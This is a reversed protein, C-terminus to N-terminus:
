NLQFYFRKKKCREEQKDPQIGARHHTAPPIGQGGSRAGGGAHGVQLLELCQATLRDIFLTPAAAVRGPDLIM